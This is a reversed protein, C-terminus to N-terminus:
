VTSLLWDSKSLVIEAARFDAPSSYFLSPKTWFVEIKSICGVRMFTKVGNGHATAEHLRLAASHEGMRPLSRGLSPITFGKKGLIM